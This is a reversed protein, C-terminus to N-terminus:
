VNYQLLLKKSTDKYYYYMVSNAIYAIDVDYITMRFRQLVVNAEQLYLNINFRHYKLVSDKVYVVDIYSMNSKIYLYDFAGVDISNEVFKLNAVDLVVLRVVGNSEVIAFCAYDNSIMIGVDIPVLDKYSYRSPTYNLIADEGNRAVLRATYEMGGTKTVLMYKYDAMPCSVVICKDCDNLNTVAGTAGEQKYWGNDDHMIIILDSKTQIIGTQVIANFAFNVNDIPYNLNINESVNKSDYDAVSNYKRICKDGVYYTYIEDGNTCIRLLTTDSNSDVDLLAIKFDSINYAYNANAMVKLLSSSTTTCSFSKSYQGNVVDEFLLDDDLYVKLTVQLDSSLSISFSDEGKSSGTFGLSCINISYLGHLSHLIAINKKVAIDSEGDLLVFEKQNKKALELAVDAKTKKIFM